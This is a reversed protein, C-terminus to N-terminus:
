MILDFVISLCNYSSSRTVCVYTAKWPEPDAAVVDVPVRHGKVRLAKPMRAGSQKRPRPQTHSCPPFTTWWVSGQFSLSHGGERAQRLVVMGGARIRFDLM